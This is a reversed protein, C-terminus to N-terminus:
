NSGHSEVSSATPSTADREVNGFNAKGTLMKIAIQAVEAFWDDEPLVSYPDIGTAAVVDIAREIINKIVQQLNRSLYRGESSFLMVFEM